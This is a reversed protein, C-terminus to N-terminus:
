DVEITRFGDPQWRKLLAVAEEAGDWSLFLKFTGSHGKRRLRVHSKDVRGSSAGSVRVLTLEELESLPCPKSPLFGFFQFSEPTVVVQCRISYWALWLSLLAFVVLLWCIGDVAGQFCFLAFGTSGVGGLVGAVLMVQRAPRPPRAVVRRAKPFVIIEAM